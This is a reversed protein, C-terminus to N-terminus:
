ANDPDGLRVAENRIPLARARNRLPVPKTAQMAFLNQFLQQPGANRAGRRGPRGPACDGQRATVEGRRLIRRRLIRYRDVTPFTALAVSVRCAAQALRRDRVLM